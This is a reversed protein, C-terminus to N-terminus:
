SAAWKLRASSRSPGLQSRRERPVIIESRRELAPPLSKAQRLSSGSCRHTSVFPGPHLPLEISMQRSVSEKGRENPEESELRPGHWRCQSFTKSGSSQPAPEGALLRCDHKLNVLARQGRPLAVVSGVKLQRFRFDLCKEGPGDSRPSPSGFRLPRSNSYRGGRTVPGQRQFSGSEPLIGTAVNSGLATALHALATHEDNIM